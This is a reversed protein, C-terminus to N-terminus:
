NVFAIKMDRSPSSVCEAVKFELTLVNPKITGQNVWKRGM